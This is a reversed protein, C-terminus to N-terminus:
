TKLFLTYIRVFERSTAARRSSMGKIKEVAAEMVGFVLSGNTVELHRGFTCM